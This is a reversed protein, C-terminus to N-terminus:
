RANSQFPISQVDAPRNQVTFYINGVRALRPDPSAAIAKQASAQLAQCDPVGSGGSSLVAIEQHSAWVCYPNNWGDVRNEKAVNTLMDSRTMTTNRLLGSNSVKVIESAHLWTVVLLYRHHMLAPDKQYQELIPASSTSGDVGPALVVGSFAGVLLEELQDANAKRIPLAFEWRAYWVLGTLGIVLALTGLALYRIVRKGQM